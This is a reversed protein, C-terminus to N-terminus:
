LKIPLKSLEVRQRVLKWSIEMLRRLQYITQSMTETFDNDRGSYHHEIWPKFKEESRQHTLLGHFIKTCLTMAIDRGGCARKGAGFASWYTNATSKNCCNRGIEDIPVFCHTNPEIIFREGDKLGHPFWREFIPFPHKYNIACLIIREMDDFDLRGNGLEFEDKFEKCTLTIAIDTLNIAPSIFFPQLLLSWYEDAFWKEQFIEYIKRHSRIEDQIWQTVYLKLKADGKGKVAIEKRYEEIAGVIMPNVEIEKPVGFLWAQMIQVTLRVLTPCDIVPNDERELYYKTVDDAITSLADLSPLHSKLIVFNDKMRQWQEDIVSELSVIPLFAETSLLQEVGIGKSSSTSLVRRALMPERIWKHKRGQMTQFMNLIFERGFNYRIHKTLVYFSIGLLGASYILNWHWQEMPFHHNGSKQIIYFSSRLTLFNM